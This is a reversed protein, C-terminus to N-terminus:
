NHVPKSLWRAGAVEDAGLPLRGGTAVKSDVRPRRLAVIEVATIRDGAVARLWAARM